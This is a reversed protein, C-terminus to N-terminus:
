LIVSPNVSAFALLEENREFFAMETENLTWAEIGQGDGDRSEGDLILETYSSDAGVAAAISTLMM